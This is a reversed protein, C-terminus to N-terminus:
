PVGTLGLEYVARQGATTDGFCWGAAVHQVDAYAVGADDLAQAGAERVMDPYDWDPRSSPKVFDTMGVGIVFVREPMPAVPIAGRRRGDLRRRRTRSDDARRAHWRGAM